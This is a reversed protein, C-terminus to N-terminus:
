SADGYICLNRADCSGCAWPHLVGSLPWEQDPGRDAYLQQIRELTSSVLRMASDAVTKDFPVSLAASTVLKPEKTKVLVHWEVPLQIANQYIWAQVKWAGTPTNVTRGSTKIEVISSEAVLDVFGKLFIDSDPVQVRIEQEVSVPKIHRPRDKWYTEVLRTSQEWVDADLMVTGLTKDLSEEIIPAIRQEIASTSAVKDGNIVAQYLEGIGAHVASGTALADSPTPDIGVLRNQRWKEPCTMFESMSSFSIHPPLIGRETDGITRLPSIAM